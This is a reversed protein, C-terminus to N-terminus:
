DAFRQDLFVDAVDGQKGEIRILAQAFVGSSEIGDNVDQISLRFDRDLALGGGDICSFHQDHRGVHRVGQTGLFTELHKQHHNTAPLPSHHL